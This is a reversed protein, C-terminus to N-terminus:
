NLREGEVNMDTKHQSIRLKMKKMKMKDEEAIKEKVGKKFEYITIGKMKREITKSMGRGKEDGDIINRMLILMSATNNADEKEIIM